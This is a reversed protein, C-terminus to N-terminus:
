VEQVYFKSVPIYTFERVSPIVVFGKTMIEEAFEKAETITPFDEVIEDCDVTIITVKHKM